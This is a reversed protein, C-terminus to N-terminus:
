ISSVHLSCLVTVDVFISWPLVAYKSEKFVNAVYSLMSDKYDTIDHDTYDTWDSDIHLPFSLKRFM